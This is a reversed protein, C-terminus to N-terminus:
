FTGMIGATLTAAFLDAGQGNDYDFDPPAVAYDYHADARGTFIQEASGGIFLNMDETVAFTAKASVAALAASEVETTIELDRMWHNDTTTAAFTFGGQASMEFTWADQVMTLDIGAVAAPFQQRYTIAPEGDPFDGVDNRYGGTSYIYSGGKAAWQIDTYKLGGNVNVTVNDGVAFDHGVKVTGDFYWDLNTDDHQSRHSWDDDGYGTNYPAIWDYDEMYSDGSLGVKGDVAFTWGEPLAVSLGATLVPATSQWILQSLRDDTTGSQYVYENGELWLVGVGGWVRVDGFATDETAGFDAAFASCATSCLLALAFGPVLHRTNM